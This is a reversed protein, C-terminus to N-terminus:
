SVVKLKVTVTNEDGGTVVFQQRCTPRPRFTVFHWFRKWKNDELQLIMLTDGVEYPNNSIHLTSEM